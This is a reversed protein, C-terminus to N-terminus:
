SKKRGQRAAVTRSSGNLPMSETLSVHGVGKALVKSGDVLTIFKLLIPTSLSTFLSIDGAVHDSAGSDIIWPSPSNGSHSICVTPNGTHAVTTIPAQNQKTAKLQLYEQFETESIAISQKGSLFDAKKEEEQSPESQVINM